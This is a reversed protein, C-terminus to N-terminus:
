RASTGGERAQVARATRDMSPGPEIAIEARSTRYVSLWDRDVEVAVSRQLLTVSLILKSESKVNVVIGTLGRLPGYEIRVVHGVQLFAWPQAPLGSKGVCQLAAIEDDDVPTPIKGTGVIQIVGPTQLVSLRDTPNLRCFLYGPFLPVEFKKMRDSWRRRLESLPLFCELEKYRLLNAASKETSTRVQVAFWPWKQNSVGM